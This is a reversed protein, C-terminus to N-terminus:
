SLEKGKRHGQLVKHRMSKDETFGEQIAELFACAQTDGSLKYCMQRQSGIPHYSLQKNGPENGKPVQPGKLSPVIIKHIKINGASLFIDSM